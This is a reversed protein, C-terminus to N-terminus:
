IGTYRTLTEPWLQKEVITSIRERLTEDQQSCGLLSMIFRTLVKAMAHSVIYPPDQSCLTAVLSVVVDAWDPDGDEPTIQLIHTQQANIGSGHTAAMIHPVMEFMMGPVGGPGCTLVFNDETKWRWGGAPTSSLSSLYVSLSAQGTQHTKNKSLDDVVTQLSPHSTCPQIVIVTSPNLEFDPVGQESTTIYVYKEWKKTLDHGSHREPSKNWSVTGTGVPTTPPDDPVTFTAASTTAIIIPTVYTM